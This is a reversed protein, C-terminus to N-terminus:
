ILRTINFASQVANMIKGTKKCDGIAYLKQVKGELAKFLDKEPKQGLALVVTDAKLEAEYRCRKNVVIAGEDTIRALRTDTLVNVYNEALLKLLHQKNPDFVDPIIDDMMEIITVKRGQQALYLATETGVLGGGAVIVSDGANKKGLLLDIATVVINKGIGPIGPVFPVSGNAIIVVEPKLEEVLGPTVEKELEIKVGLKALQNTYYERLLAVDEKFKPVSGPILHGGLHNSKEYLNVKHGRLTAVRSAEMGAIGGGVVLVSKSEEAPKIKLKRENGCAPNVACSLSKGRAVNGMCGEHCGICPCIDELRGERAKLPWEPDSLLPRGLAVFDAKGERIVSDALKPYGLRGVTIVPIKVVGKVAEAMDVMCGPPQYNPPHPWYWNDYCGADVHLADVGARELSRAIELSEPVDRGGELYHKIAYRFIIPFDKEAKDKINEIIELAFRLRGDLDGGYRDTRKNWLSTMFQDLMYGEHGHLEIADIGAEAVIEAATGFSKILKEVEETTLERTTKSLDWVNPLKSPAVNELGMSLLMPLIVRGFGATLQITIKAGHDHVAEALERLRPIVEPIDARFLPVIGMKLLPGFEIELTPFCFSSIILGVEGKAREAYYDIGRQSIKGDSELLGISIGMPAMVIRNKITLRGIKGPNFLNVIKDM